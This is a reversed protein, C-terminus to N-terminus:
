MKKKKKNTCKKHSFCLEHFKQRITTFKQLIDICHTKRKLVCVVPAMGLALRPLAKRFCIPHFIFPQQNNPQYIGACFRQIGFKGVLSLSLSLTRLRTHNLMSWTTFKSSRFPVKGLNPASIRELRTFHPIRTKFDRSLRM